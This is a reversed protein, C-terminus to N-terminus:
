RKLNNLMSKLKSSQVDVSVKRVEPDIDQTESDIFPSVTSITKIKNMLSTASPQPNSYTTSESQGEDGADSIRLTEVNFQLDIKNGVGSSSRTKM